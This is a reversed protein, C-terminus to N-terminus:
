AHTEIPLQSGEWEELGGEFDYVNTFGAAELKKAAKTSSDCAASACYVVIPDTKSPVIKEVRGVFDGRDQPASMTHPIHKARFADESLTNIVTLGENAALQERLTQADITRVAFVGKRIHQLM